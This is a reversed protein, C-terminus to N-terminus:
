MVLPASYMIYITYALTNRLVSIDVGYSLAFGRGLRRWYPHFTLFLTIYLSGGPECWASVRKVVVIERMYLCACLLVGRCMCFCVSAVLCPIVVEVVSVPMREPHVFFLISNMREADIHLDRSESPLQWLHTYDTDLRLAEQAGLVHLPSWQILM